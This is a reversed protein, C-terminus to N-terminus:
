PGGFSQCADDFRVDGVHDAVVSPGAVGPVNDVFGEVVAVAGEPGADKEVREPGFVDGQGEARCGGGVRRGLPVVVVKGELEVAVLRLPRQLNHPEHIFGGVRRSRGLLCCGGATPQHLSDAELAVEGHAPRRRLLLEHGDEVAEQALRADLLDGDRLEVDAVRRPGDKGGVRRRQLLLGLVVHRDHARTQGDPRPARSDDDPLERVLVTPHRARERARALRAQVVGVHALLGRPRADRRLKSSGRSSGRRSPSPSTSQQHRIDRHSRRPGPHFSCDVRCRAGRGPTSERVCGPGNPVARRPRRRGCGHLHTPAVSQYLAHHSRGQSHRDHADQKGYKSSPM